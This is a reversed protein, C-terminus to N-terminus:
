NAIHMKPKNHRKKHILIEKKVTLHYEMKHIRNTM